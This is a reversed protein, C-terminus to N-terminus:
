YIEWQIRLQYFNTRGSLGFRDLRGYGYNFEFRFESTPFWSLAASVRDFKGGSITGSDLDIWSYRAAVEWAGSGGHKLTFPAAPKLQGFYGGAYNYPRTEGTIAWSTQVYYADFRPNGAQPSSSRARTYEAAVTVPGQVAAFEFGLSSGHNAPVSGTDVFFPAEYVEPRSRSRLSGAQAQAYAGWIGFHLLRRGGDENIPVGAVRGNFINGSESFSLGNTLWGNYWGASWAIQKGAANGKFRVGANRPTTLASSMTSREMFSLDENNSLREMGIGESQQGITVTAFRGLPISFNLDSLTWGRQSHNQDAGDYEGAIQFSWPIPFHLTGDIELNDLRFKADNPVNGVQEVSAADQSFFAGDVMATIDLKLTIWSNAWQNWPLKPPAAPSPAAEQTLTEQGMAAVAAALALALAFAARHVRPARRRSPPAPEQAIGLTVAGEPRIVGFVLRSGDPFDNQRMEVRSPIGRM